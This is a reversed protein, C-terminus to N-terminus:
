STLFNETMKLVRLNIVTNVLARWRDRDHALNIVEVGQLGMNSRDTKIDEWRRRSTGLPRGEPRGVLIKNANIMEGM